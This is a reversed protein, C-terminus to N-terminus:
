SEAVAERIAAVIVRPDPFDECYNYRYTLRLVGARDVVFEGPLQWPDDVLPRGAERRGDIFGQTADDERRQLDGPADYLFLLPKGEM